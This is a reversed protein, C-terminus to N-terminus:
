KGAAYIHSGDPSVAVSSAGNLGSVGDVGDEQLKVFTLVEVPAGNARLYSGGSMAILVVAVLASAM